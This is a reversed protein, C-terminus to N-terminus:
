ITLSDFAFYEIKFFAINSKFRENNINSKFISNNILQMISFTCYINDKNYSLYVRLLIIM